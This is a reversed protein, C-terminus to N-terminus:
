LLATISKATLRKVQQQKTLRKGCIGFRCSSRGRHKPRAQKTDEAQCSRGSFLQQADADLLSQLRWDPPPKGSGWITTKYAFEQRSPVHRSDEGESARPRLSYIVVHLPPRGAFNNM